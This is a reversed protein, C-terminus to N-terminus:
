KQDQLPEIEILQLALRNPIKPLKIETSNVKKINKKNSIVLPKKLHCLM